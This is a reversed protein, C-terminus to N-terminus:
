VTVGNLLHRAADCIDSALLGRQGNKLAEQDAAHAHLIVGLDVIDSLTKAKDTVATSSENETYKKTYFQAIVGCLIGTLADGMGGSAMGPNGYTCVMVKGNPHAVLTGAGKLVIHGGLKEQLAQVAALRNSEVEATTIGLLRAAEGPHPTFVHNESRAPKVKNAAILNLADADFVKCANTNGTIIQMSKCAWDDQSLGPGIGIVDAHTIRQSTSQADLDHHTMIEPQMQTVLACHEARTIVSNLGAGIRACARAAIMLAGAFGYNGGILLSRGNDGKHAHAQRKPLRLITSTIDLSYLPHDDKTLPFAEIPIDLDYLEIAGSHQQGQGTILGLKNGIFTVTIDANIACGLPTGTTANLGSPTDIALVKCGIRRLANTQEIASKYLGEVPRSLGTGFLADVIVVEDTASDIASLTAICDSTYTQIEVRRAIADEYARKADGQLSSTTDVLSICTVPIGKAHALLAFAYGDGANNGSGCLVVFREVCPWHHMAREFAIRGAKCMLEYSPIGYEHIAIRDIERVQEPLFIPNFKQQNQTTM